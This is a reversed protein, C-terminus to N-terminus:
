ERIKRYTEVSDREPHLAEGEKRFYSPNRWPSEILYTEDQEAIAPISLVEWHERDM